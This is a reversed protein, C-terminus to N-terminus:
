ARHGKAAYMREDALRFLTDYDKAETPCQAAGFSLTPVPTTGEGQRVRELLGSVEAPDTGPLILAFEDGGIRAANDGFRLVNRFREAVARLAADGAAHGDNDNISKLHDVDLIVLTFPWDHRIARATSMELLRDFSRRDFLGTLPDHWADYRLVELRLALVCLNVLLGPDFDAHSIEPETYLGTPATLLAEDAEGLPRRGARFVQRGLGPEEVVVAADVLDCRDVVDDLARYILSLGAGDTALENVLDIVPSMVADSGRGNESLRTHESRARESRADGGETHVRETTDHDTESAPAFVRSAQEAGSADIM